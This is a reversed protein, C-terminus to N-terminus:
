EGECALNWLNFLLIFIFPLSVCLAIAALLVFINQSAAETTTESWYLVFPVSILFSFFYMNDQDDIYHFLEVLCLDIVVVFLLALWLPGELGFIAANVVICSALYNIFRM